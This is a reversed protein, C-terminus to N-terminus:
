ALKRRPIVRLNADCDLRALNLYDVAVRNARIALGLNLTAAVDRPELGCCERPIISYRTPIKRKYIAANYNSRLSATAMAKPAPGTAAVHESM